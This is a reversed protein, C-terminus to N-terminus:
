ATYLYGQLDAIAGRLNDAGGFLHAIEMVNGHEFIPPVQLIDPVKFESVGHEVYKDLVENLVKRAEEGYRQFFDPKNKRLLEARERRSRLPLSYAVHCLLDFPDADPQGAAKM